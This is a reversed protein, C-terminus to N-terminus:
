AWVSVNSMRNRDWIFEENSIKDSHAIWVEILKNEEVVIKGDNDKECSAGVVERNKNM